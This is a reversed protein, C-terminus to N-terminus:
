DDIWHTWRPVGWRALYQVLDPTGYYTPHGNQTFALASKDVRLGTQRAKHTLDALVNARGSDTHNVADAAFVAFHIGQDQLHALRIRM